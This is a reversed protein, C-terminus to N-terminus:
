ARMPISSSNRFRGHHRQAIGRSWLDRANATAAAPLRFGRSFAQGKDAECAVTAPIPQTGFAPVRLVKPRCCPRSIRGTM